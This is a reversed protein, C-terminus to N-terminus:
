LLCLNVEKIHPNLTPVEWQSLLGETGARESM